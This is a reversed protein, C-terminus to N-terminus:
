IYICSDLCAGFSFPCLWLYVVSWDWPLCYLKHEFYYDWPTTAETSNIHLYIHMTTTFCCFIKGCKKLDVFLLLNMNFMSNLIHISNPMSMWHFQICKYINHVCFHHYKILVMMSNCLMKFVRDFFFFNLDVLFLYVFPITTRLHVFFYIRKKLIFGCAFHHLVEFENM